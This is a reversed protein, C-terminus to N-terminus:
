RANRERERQSIRAHSLGVIAATDRTSLGADTRLTHILDDVASELRVTLARSEARLAELRQMQETVTVPGISVSALTVTVADPDHGDHEGALERVRREIAAYDKERFTWDPRDQVSVTWAKDDVDARTITLTYESM